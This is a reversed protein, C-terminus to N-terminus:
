QPVVPAVELVVFAVAYEGQHSISLHCHTAHQPNALAKMKRAVAGSFKAKPAGQEDPLIEIQRWTVGGGLGTGLAKLIAEKAAFRGAIREDAAVHKRCYAEELPTLIRSVASPRLKRIRAIQVIDTGVGTIM